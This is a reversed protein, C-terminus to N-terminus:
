RVGAIRPDLLHYSVDVVVNVAVYVVASVLVVSQIVPYDRTAIADITLKGLGPWSFITEIIVAGGLLGGVTLGLQTVVPILANRFAHRIVIMSERVGRGRAAVIYQQSLVDLMSARVLRTFTGAGGLGLALSPLVLHDIGGRGLSPLWQLKVAFLWILVLSVLFSPFAGSALAVVRALMDPWRDHNLAALVGLPIGALVMVVLGGTALQVTPWMRDVLQPGVGSGTSFSRGLDGSAVRQLWVAYQQVLNGNLGLSERALAVEEATPRGAESFQRAYIEAADGPALSVLAWAIVSVGFLVPASQLIRYLLFRM